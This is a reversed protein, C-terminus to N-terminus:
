DKMEDYLAQLEIEETFELGALKPVLVMALESLVDIILNCIYTNFAPDRDVKMSVGIDMHNSYPTAADGLVPASSAATPTV